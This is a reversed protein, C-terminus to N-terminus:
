SRPSVLGSHGSRSATRVAGSGAAESLHRGAVAEQLTMFVHDRGLKDFFGSHELKDRVPGILGSLRLAIGDRQLEEWVDQLSHLGTSDIASITAADLVVVHTGPRAAVNERIAQQWFSANAFFWQGDPRLILTNPPEIAEPFRQVNRYIGKGGYAGLVAYHPRSSRYVLDAISLAVGALIGAEVGLTVTVLFTAALLVLDRRDNHYLYRVEKLDILGYVAVLIIAALVAQPLNYFLPTLFLLTLAILAASIIAALGSQAGAQENVATRSFGGTTPHAQFFSGAINAAGLAILEKNADVEYNRHKRQVARAVAYSEMFSILSITLAIPALHQVVGWIGGPLNHLSESFFPIGPRPLGSPIQGIINVGRDNLSFFHVAAIGAVVALLPGPLRPDIRRGALIFAIAGVGLALTVGQIQQVQSFLAGLLVHLQQTSPLPIGALHKFQSFGIILAAGTTFGSIVPHSLFNVLFGLRLLGMSMQLVGVMMALLIAMALFVAPDGGALAGVGTNVLLSILAVPGVALHRSTGFLAYVLLPVTSSYLGFIPPLGAIMAYAMGQPILMVGVTLGAFLDGRLWERRYDRMWRLGPMWRELM